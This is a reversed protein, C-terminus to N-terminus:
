QPRACDSLSTTLLHLWMDRMETPSSVYKHDGTISIRQAEANFARKVHTGSRKSEFDRSINETLATIEALTAESIDGKLM